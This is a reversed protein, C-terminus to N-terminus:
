NQNKLTQKYMELHQKENTFTWIEGDPTIEFFRKETEIYFVLGLSGDEKAPLLEWSISAGLNLERAREIFSNIAKEQAPTAKM